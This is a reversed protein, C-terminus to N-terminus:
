PIVKDRRGVLPRIGKKQYAQLSEAYLMGIHAVAEAEKADDGAGYVEADWRHITQLQARIENQSELLSVLSAEVFNDGAIYVPDAAPLNYVKTEIERYLDEKFVKKWQAFFAMKPEKEGREYQGILQSSFGIQRGIESRNDGQRVIADAIIKGIEKKAEV